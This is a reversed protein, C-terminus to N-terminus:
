EDGEGREELINFITKGINVGATLPAVRGPLSLLWVARIGLEAATDFDVGGPKSALDIVLCGKDLLRLKAGDLIVAPATNFILSYEGLHQSLDCIRINKCGYVEAWALDSCKRAAVTVDANFGGLIHVLMKAIRGMGIILIKQGSITSATEEMAVQLAGEATAEANLVAFEERASYDITEINRAAFMEKINDTFRGGFATGNEKLAACLLEVPLTSGSYPMNVNVGDNSVPLPMILHDVRENLSMLNKLTHIKGSPVIGSDFGLTYVFCGKEALYEALRAFRLDGGVVLYKKKMLYM